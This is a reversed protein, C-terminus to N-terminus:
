CETTKLENVLFYLTSQVFGCNRKHSLFMQGKLLNFTKTWNHLRQEGLTLEFHLWEISSMNSRFGFAKIIFQSIVEGLDEIIQALFMTAKCEHRSLPCQWAILRKHPEWEVTNVLLKVKEGNTCLLVVLSNLDLYFKFLNHLNTTM